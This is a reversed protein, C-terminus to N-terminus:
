VERLWARNFDGDEQLHILLHKSDLHGLSFGGKLGLKAFILRSRELTPRGNSFKGILSYKFLKLMFDVAAIPIKLAPDGKHSSFAFISTQSSSPSPTAEAVKLLSSFSKKTTPSPTSSSEGWTSAASPSFAGHPTGAMLLPPWFRLGKWFLSIIALTQPM